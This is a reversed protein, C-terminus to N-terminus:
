EVVIKMWEGSNIRDNPALGNLMRFREVARDADGHPEGVARGHRGPRRHRSSACRSQRRAKRWHEHPPLHRGIRPLRPRDGADHQKAAFIFRYVDSGFRVAYLRFAWQDGKATATAAPFGNIRSSRSADQRRYERDLRLHSLGALTQEAPVRVVDLRLAQGGGDKVGLVAQATNDLSFGEPAIFTFGLKPHLFRRGRVFGESPDEGYVM